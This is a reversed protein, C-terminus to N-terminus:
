GATLLIDPQTILRFGEGAPLAPPLSCHPNSHYLSVLLAAPTEWDEVGRGPQGWMEGGNAQM